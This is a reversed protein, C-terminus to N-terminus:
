RGLRQSFTDWDVQRPWPAAVAPPTVLGHPYSRIGDLAVVNGGAEGEPEEIVYLGPPPKMM